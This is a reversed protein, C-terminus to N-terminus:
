KIRLKISITKDTKEIKLIKVMNHKKLSNMLLNITKNKQEQQKLWKDILDTNKLWSELNM